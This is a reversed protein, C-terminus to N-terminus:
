SGKKFNSEISVGIRYGVYAGLLLLPFTCAMAGGFGAVGISSGFWGGM